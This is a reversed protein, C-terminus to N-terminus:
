DVVTESMKSARERFQEAEKILEYLPIGLAQAIADLTGLKPEHAAGHELRSILSPTRIGARLTLDKQSLKAQRRRLLLVVAFAETLTM